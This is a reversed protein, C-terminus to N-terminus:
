LLLEVLEEVKIGSFYSNYTTSSIREILEAESPICGNIERCFDETPLVFFYDGYIHLDKIKGGDVNYYAEYTGSPFRRVNKFAYRPSQGFNWKETTYRSERLYDIAANDIESYDYPTVTEREGDSGVITGETVRDRLYAIFENVTMPKSLHESINTVRARNSKVAKDQYKEPRNMLAGGMDDMSANFLLTGHQLIRGHSVALANGSFKLGDICLDNRGELRADVRLSHLAEIIPRTYRSFITSTDEFNKQSDIFTFNVNGLDHFVAGGGTLRRVVAIGHERVFDRNIEAATNQYRGVIVSKENRWLRFIPERKSKFLYEEAALNRYPDTSSDVICLM